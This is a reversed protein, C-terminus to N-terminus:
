RAGKYWEITRRLGEEFPVAAEYGFTKKALSVDAKSVRVDGVRAAEHVPEVATGLAANIGALLELLNYSAGCAINFVQGRAEFDGTAALVNARVTNEVFTFDRAQLGDGYITPQRGDLVANIFRPIVASYPSDPDQRPGFVNFYRLAVTELGFCTSFAQLYHEGAAKTAAYPSLPGRRSDERKWETEQDGYVSSSSAFVFRKIQADRAAMLLNLTGTIGAEHSLLPDAISRPVSPVAAQHLVYDMGGMAQACVEPSRIDGEVIEAKGTFAALNERHGTSFNDLVRVSAGQELLHEVINSGIFGAGGTVLYNAM